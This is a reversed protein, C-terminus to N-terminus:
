PGIEPAPTTLLCGSVPARHPVAPPDRLLRLVAPTGTANAGLGGSFVLVGGRAFGLTHSSSLVGAAAALSGDDTEVSGNPIEAAADWNRGSVWDSPVGPPAVFIVRVRTETGAAATRLGALMGSTCVCKPHAFVVLTPVAPPPGFVAPWRPPPTAEPAPRTEVVGVALFGVGVVALWGVALGREYRGPM